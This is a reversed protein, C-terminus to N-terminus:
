YPYSLIPQEYNPLLSINLYSLILSKEAKETDSGPFKAQTIDNFNWTM